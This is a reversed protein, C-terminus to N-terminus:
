DEFRLNILGIGLKRNDGSINLEHPSTPQPPLFEIRTVREGDLDIVKRYEDIEARMRFSHVQSGIRVQLNQGSNPGFSQAVFVINVRNPLPDQFDIRVSPALNADSWRGWPEWGSVGRIDKVFVPFEPRTFDIGQALTAKYRTGLHDVVYGVKRMIEEASLGELNVQNVQHIKFFVIEGDARALAPPTNLLETLGNIVFKGNDEFGRRDVYIGAFGLRKIVELQKALPEQALSRYFLDGSRGKMGAYSWSLSTSNLFGAALGYSELRFLHPVEPFSMYPLQYVASEAPLSKEISRVFERDMHFYKNLQENCPVCPSVTQDYLGVVLVIVSIVSSVYLLRQGSFYRQLISQTLMFIGLLAGFSIFVSIRSWGRISSSIAYSFVSGFGGITGFLFLVLVILAVVRLINDHKKGSLVSFILAFIALFGIAGVVGLSSTSNENVLPATSSYEASVKELTANRHGPRPFILQVFKFGYIEAEAPSRQAVELNPGEKYRHALNPAINLLVGLIVMCVTLFAIKGARLNNNEVVGCLTAVMIIILGFIAYYVGFSGLIILIASYIIKKSTRIKIEVNPFSLSYIKLAVFYFIPVVFYWTYYLHDLRQFHFPLFDFLLASSFAFSISLGVTRFVCFSAVFTVSFGLLYYLNLATHYEGTLMGIIKLVLHNGSDSGPFDLFSSGFPYGSRPNEFIWGEITRQIMWGSSLGDGSYTFPYELNPLIGSPWGMMLFSALVFSTIAGMLWWKWDSRFISSLSTPSSLSVKFM